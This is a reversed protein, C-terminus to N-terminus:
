CGWHISVFVSQGISKVLSESVAHDFIFGVINCDNGIEIQHLSLYHWQVWEILPPRSILETTEREAPINRYDHSCLSPLGVSVSARGSTMSSALLCWNRHEPHSVLRDRRINHSLRRDSPPFYTMSQHPQQWQIATGLWRFRAWKNCPRWCLWLWIRVFPMIGNALRM